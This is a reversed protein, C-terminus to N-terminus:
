GHGAAGQNLENVAQSTGFSHALGSIYRIRFEQLSEDRAVVFGGKFDKDPAV